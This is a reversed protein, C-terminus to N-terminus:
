RLNCALTGCRTTPPADQHRDAVVRTDDWAGSAGLTLVPNGSNGCTWTLGGDITTALYIQAGNSGPHTTFYMKYNNAGVVLVAPRAPTAVSHLSAPVVPNCHSLGRCRHYLPM